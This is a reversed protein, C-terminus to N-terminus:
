NWKMRTHAFEQEPTGGLDAQSLALHLLLAEQAPSAAQGLVGRANRFHKVADDLNDARLFYEGVGRRVEAEVEPKLKVKSDKDVAALAERLAREQRNSNILHYVGAAAGIVVLVGTVALAYRNFKERKTLLIKEEPIAEAEELADDSVTTSSTTSGWAGAPA